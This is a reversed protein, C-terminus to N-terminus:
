ARKFRIQAVGTDPDWDIGIKGAPLAGTAVLHDFHSRFMAAKAQKANGFESQGAETAPYDTRLVAHVNATVVRGKSLTTTMAALLGDEYEATAGRPARKVDTLDIVGYDDAMNKVEKRTFSEV